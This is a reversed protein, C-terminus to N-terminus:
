TGKVAMRTVGLRTSSPCVERSPAQHGQRQHHHAGPHQRGQRASYVPQHGQILAIGGRGPPHQPHQPLFLLSIVGACLAPTMDKNYM